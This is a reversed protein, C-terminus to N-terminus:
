KNIWDGKLSKMSIGDRKLDAYTRNEFEYTHGESNIFLRFAVANPNANARVEDVLKQIAGEIPNSMVLEKGQIAPDPAEPKRTHRAQQHIAERDTEPFFIYASRTPSSPVGPYSRRGAPENDPIREYDRGRCFTITNM